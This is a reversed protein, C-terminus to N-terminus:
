QKFLTYTQKNRYSYIKIENKSVPTIKIQKVTGSETLTKNYNIVDGKYITYYKKNNDKWAINYESSGNKNIKFYFKGNKTKWTGRLYEEAIIGNYVLTKKADEFNGLELLVPVIKDMTYSKGQYTLNYEGMKIMSLLRYKESDKYDPLVESIGIVEQYKGGKYDTQMEAYLKETVEPLEEQADQNGREALEKMRIYATKTNNETELYYHAEAYRLLDCQEVSDKYNIASLEDMITVAEDYLHREALQLAKQYRAEHYMEDSNLFGSLEGFASEAYSYEGAEMKKGAAIYDMLKQSYLSPSVISKEAAAFDGKRAHRYPAYYVGALIALVLVIAAPILWKMISAKGAQKLTGQSVEQTTSNVVGATKADATEAAAAGDANEARVFRQGCNPCFIMNDELKTGCYPCYKM